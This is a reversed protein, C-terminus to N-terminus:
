EAMAELALDHEIDTLMARFLGDTWGNGVCYGAARLDARYLRRFYAEPAAAVREMTVGRGGLRILIVVEEIQAAEGRPPLDLPYDPIARSLAQHIFQTADVGAAVSARDLSQKQAESLVLRTSKRTDKEPM